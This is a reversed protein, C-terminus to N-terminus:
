LLCHYVSTPCSIAPPLSRIRDCSPTVFRIESYNLYFSAGAGNTRIPRSFGDRTRSGRGGSGGTAGSAPAPRARGSSYRNSHASGSAGSSSSSSQLSSLAAAPDLALRYEADPEADASSPRVPQNQSRSQDGGGLSRRPLARGSAAPARSGVRLQQQQQQETRRSRRAAAAAAARSHGGFQNHALRARPVPLRLEPIHPHLQQAANACEFCCSHVRIFSTLTCNLLYWVYLSNIHVIYLVTCYMSIRFAFKHM